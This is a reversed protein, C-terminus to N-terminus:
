GEKNDKLVRKEREGKVSTRRSRKSGRAKERNGKEEGSKRGERRRRREEMFSFPCRRNRRFKLSKKPLNSPITDGGQIDDLRKIGIQGEQRIDTRKTEQSRFCCVM